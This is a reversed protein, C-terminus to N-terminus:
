DIPKMMVGHAAFTALGAQRRNVPKFLPGYSSLIAIYKLLV